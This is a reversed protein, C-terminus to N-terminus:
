FGTFFNGFSLGSVVIKLQGNQIETTPYAAMKSVEM